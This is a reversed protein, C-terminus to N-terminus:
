ENKKKDKSSLNKLENKTVAIKKNINDMLENKLFSKTDDILKNTNKKTEKFMSPFKDFTNKVVDIGQKLHQKLKSSDSIRDKISNLAKRWKSEEKEQKYFIQPQKQNIMSIDGTPEVTDLHHIKDKLIGDDAIHHSYKPKSFCILPKQEVAHEYCIGNETFCKSMNKMISEVEKLKNYATKDLRGMSYEINKIERIHGSISDVPESPCDICEFEFLQDSNDPICQELKLIKTDQNYTMCQSKQAIRYCVDFDIPIIQYYQEKVNTKPTFAIEQTKNITSFALYPLKTLNIIRKNKSDKVQEFNVLINDFMINSSTQSLEAPGKVYVNDLQCLKIKYNKCLILSTFWLM